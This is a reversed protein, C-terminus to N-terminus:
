VPRASRIEQRVHQGRQRPKASRGIIAPGRRLCPTESQVELPSAQGIKLIQCVRRVTFQGLIAAGSQVHSPRVIVTRLGTYTAAM